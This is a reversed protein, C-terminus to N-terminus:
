RITEESAIMGARSNTARNHAAQASVTGLPAPPRRVLAVILGALILPGIIAWSRAHLVRHSRTMVAKRHEICEVLGTGDAAVICYRGAIHAVQVHTYQSANGSRSSHDRACCIRHCFDSGADLVSCDCVLHGFGGVNLGRGASTGATRERQGM